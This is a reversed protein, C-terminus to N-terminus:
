EWELETFSATVNRAHNETPSCGPRAPRCRCRTLRRSSPGTGDCSAACHTACISSIPASRHRRRPGPRAPRATAPCSGSRRCANWSTWSRAALRAPQRRRGPHAGHVPSRRRVPHRHRHRARHPRHRHARDALRAAGARPRRPRHHRDDDVARTPRVLETGDLAPGILAACAPSITPATRRWASPSTPMASSRAAARRLRRERVSPRPPRAHRHRPQGAPRDARPDGGAAGRGARLSGGSDIVAVSREGVVFGLNAIGGANAPTFDEHPGQHVFVGPAIETVTLPAAAAAVTAWVCAVALLAAVSPRVSRGAPPDRGPRGQGQRGQRLQRRDRAPARGGRHRGPGARGEDRRPAARGRGGRGPAAGRPLRRSPGQDRVRGAGARARGPGQAARQDPEPAGGAGGREGVPQRAAGRAGSRHRGARARARGARDLRRNLTSGADAMQKELADLKAAREASRDHRGEAVEQEREGLVALRDNLSGTAKALQDEVANSSAMPRKPPPSGRRQHRHAESQCRRAEPQHGGGRGQARRSGPRPRGQGEGPRVSGFRPRDRAVLRDRGARRARRGRDPRHTSLGM